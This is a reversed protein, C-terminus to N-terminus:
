RYLGERQNHHHHKFRENYKGRKYGFLRLFVVM